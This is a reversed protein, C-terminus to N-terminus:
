KLPDDFRSLPDFIFESPKTVNFSSKAYATMLMRNNPPNYPKLNSLIERVGVIRFWVVVCNSSIIMSPFFRCSENIKSHYEVLSHFKFSWGDFMVIVDKHDRHRRLVGAVRNNVWGNIWAYILSFMLTGHRQSEFPWCRPFHKWKIIDDPSYSNFQVSSGYWHNCIRSYPQKWTKQAESTHVYICSIRNTLARICCQLVVFICVHFSSYM